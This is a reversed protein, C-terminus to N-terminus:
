KSKVHKFFVSLIKNVSEPQELQGMHASERLLYFHTENALYSQELSKNLPVAKDHIGAIILLPITSQRILNSFDERKKIAEYYQILVNSHLKFSVLFLEKITDNHREENYFLDPTITKLFIESDNNKLFQISKNRSKIKQFDDAFVTSHILGLGKLDKPYMHYYSLAIYGGMSHGIMVVNELKEIEVIQKLGKAYDSIAVSDGELAESQGAGFINPLIIKYNSSLAEAQLKWVSSDEAFGHILMIPMGEGTIQYHLTKNKYTIIKSIM